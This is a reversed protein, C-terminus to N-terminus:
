GRRGSVLFHRDSQRGDVELRAVLSWYALMVGVGGVTIHAWVAREVEGYGLLWPSPVLWLATLLGIWQFPLAKSKASVFGAAAILLGAGVSNAFALETGAFRLLWPSAALGLGLASLGLSFRRSISSYDLM